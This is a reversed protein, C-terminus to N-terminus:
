HSDNKMNYTIANVPCINTCEQCQHCLAQTISARRTDMNVQIAKAHCVKECKKCGVCKDTDVLTKFFSKRGVLTLIAGFPCLNNHIVWSEYRLALLMSLAVLVILVPFERHLIKRSGIMLAVSVLLVIWGLVKSRLFKPIASTRIKTKKSIIESLRMGTNMPCMYGCYIRGFFPTLLTTVVFLLLWLKTKSAIVLFAFLILSLIQLISRVHKKAIMM